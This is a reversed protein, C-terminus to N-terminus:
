KVSRLIGPKQYLLMVENGTLPRSFVALEDLLGVLNVAFYVRTQEIDWARIGARNCLGRSPTTSTPGSAASSVM